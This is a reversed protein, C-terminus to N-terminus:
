ASEDNSVPLSNSVTGSNSIVLGNSGITRSMRTGDEFMELRRRHQQVLERYETGQIDHAWLILADEDPMQYYGKRAGVPAFGFRRYLEQAPTNSMRVELTLASASRRWAADILTVMLRSAIRERQRAPKVGINTIHADDVAIMLGGFGVVQNHDMAVFYERTDTLVLEGHLVAASWPKPNVAQEILLVAREHRPRMAVIEIQSTM